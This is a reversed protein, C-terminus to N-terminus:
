SRVAYTFLPSNNQTTKKIKETHTHFQLGIGAGAVSQQFCDLIIALHQVHKKMIQIHQWCYQTKRKNMKNERQEGEMM